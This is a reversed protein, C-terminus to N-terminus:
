ITGITTIDIYDTDNVYLDTGSSVTVSLNVVGTTDQYRFHDIVLNKIAYVDENPGTAATQAIKVLISTEPGPGYVTVSTTQFQQVAPLIKYFDVGANLLYSSVTVGNSSIVYATAGSTVNVLAPTVSISTDSNINTITYSSNESSDASIRIISGTVLETAFVTGSGTITTGTSFNVTGTLATSTVYNDIIEPSVDIITDSVVNVITYATTTSTGIAIKLDRNLDTFMTNVGYIRSFGGAITNDPGWIRGTIATSSRYVDVVAPSVSLETNSIINTITYSTVGYKSNFVLRDNVDVDTTFNTNIGNVTTSGLTTFIQGAVSTSGYVWPNSTSGTWIKHATYWSAGGNTSFQIELDESADPIEGGNFNDGVLYQIELDLQGCETFSTTQVFRDTISSGGNFVFAATGFDYARLATSTFSNSLITGVNSSYSAILDPKSFDVSFAYGYTLSTTATFAQDVTINDDDIIDVVAYSTSYNLYQGFRILQGTTLESTFAAGTGVVSTTGASLALDGTLLTYAGAFTETLSTTRQQQQDLEIRLAFRDYTQGRQGNYPKFRFRAESGAVYAASSVQIGSVRTLYVLSSAYNDVPNPSIMMYDNSLINTIVYSTLLNDVHIYDGINFTTEFNTGAGVLLGTSSSAVVYGPTQIYTQVTNSSHYYILENIGLSNNLAIRKYYDQEQNGFYPIFTSNSSVSLSIVNNEEGDRNGRTNKVYTLLLIMSGVSTATMSAAPINYTLVGSTINTLIENSSTVGDNMISERTVVLGSNVDYKWAILQHDLDVSRILKDWSAGDFRVVERRNSGFYVDTLSQLAFTIHEGPYDYTADYSIAGSTTYTITTFGTSTALQTLSTGTQLDGTRDFTFTSGLIFEQQTPFSVTSEISVSTVFATSSNQAINDTAFENFLISGTPHLTNLVHDAWTQRDYSSRVVYSFQQYYTSDQLVQDYSLQSNSNRYVGSDTILTGVSTVTIQSTTAAAHDYYIGTIAESSSFTGSITGTEFILDYYNLNGQGSVRIVTDVVANALTTTATVWSHALNVVDGSESLVRISRKVYWDGDSTKFLVDRPYKITIDDNFFARFFYRFSKESGKLRYVDRFYKVLISDDVSSISPLNPVYTNLFQIKLDNATTDIDRNLRINQISHQVGTSTNELWNFYKTVFIVFLPYFEQVYDPIQDPLLQSLKNKIDTTM